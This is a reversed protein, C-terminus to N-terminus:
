ALTFVAAASTESASAGALLGCLHWNRWPARRFGAHFGMRLRLDSNGILFFSSLNQDPGDKPDNQTARPHSNM